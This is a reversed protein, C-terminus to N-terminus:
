VLPYLEEAIQGLNCRDARRADRGVPIDHRQEVDIDGSFPAVEPPNKRIHLFNGCVQLPFLGAASGNFDPALRSEHVIGIRLQDESEDRRNHEDIQRITTLKWDQVSGKMM